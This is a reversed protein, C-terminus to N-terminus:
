PQLMHIPPPLGLEAMVGELPQAIAEGVGGGIGPVGVEQEIVFSFKGPPLHLCVTSM